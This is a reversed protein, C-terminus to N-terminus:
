EMPELISARLHPPPMMDAPVTLPKYPPVTKALEHSRKYWQEIEEDEVMIEGTQADIDAHGVQGVHGRHSATLIVPVRWVSRGGEDVFAATGSMFGMNVDLLWLCCRKEADEASIRVDPEIHSLEGRMDLWKEILTEIALRQQHAASSLREYTKPSLEITYPNVM